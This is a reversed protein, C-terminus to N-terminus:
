AQLAARVSTSHAGTVFFSHPLHPPAGTLSRPWAHLEAAPQAEVLIQSVKDLGALALGQRVPIFVAQNAQLSLMGKGRRLVGTVPFEGGGVRVKQGLAAARGFLSRAAGSGLVAGHVSFHGHTFNLQELPFYSGTTAIVTVAAPAGRGAAVPLPLQSVPAVRRIGAGRVAAIAQSDAVTLTSPLGGTAFPPGGGRAFERPGGRAGTGPTAPSVTFVSAGVQRFQHSVYDRVATGLSVLTVVAFVGIVVGLATLASRTRHSWIADLAIAFANM